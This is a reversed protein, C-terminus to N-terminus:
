LAETPASGGDRRGTALSVAILVLFGFPITVLGPQSFPVLTAQAAAPPAYGYVNQFAEASVLIWALSSAMGALIGATVGQKTTRKWFLVMVLAPLNASAAISFAWGVLFGANMGEFLIGLLIAVAGVVVAVLKGLRVKQHDFLEIRLWGCLLDHVVAGSAAV